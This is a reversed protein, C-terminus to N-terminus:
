FYMEFSKSSWMAVTPMLLTRTTPLTTVKDVPLDMGTGMTSPASWLPASQLDPVSGEFARHATRSSSPAPKVDNQNEAKNTDPSAIEKYNFYLGTLTYWLWLDQYTCLHLSQPKISQPPARWTTCLHAIHLTYQATHLACQFHRWQRRQCM